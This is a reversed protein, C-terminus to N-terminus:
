STKVHQGMENPEIFKGDYSYYGDRFRQIIIARLIGDLRYQMNLRMLRDQSSAIRQLGGTVRRRIRNSSGYWEVYNGPCRRYGFYRRYWEPNRNGVSRIMHNEHMPEPAPTLIVDLWNVDLEHLMTQAETIFESKINHPLDRTRTEFAEIM